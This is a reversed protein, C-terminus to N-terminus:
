KMLVMKRQEVFSGASLRYFYVGSPLNKADFVVSQEGPNLEGEVLTAVERSLVDFVKLSVLSRHPLSFRITTTPNFPNPYNQYLSIATPFSEATTIGGSTVTARKRFYVRLFGNPNNIDGPSIIEYNTFFEGTPLLGGAKFAVTSDYRDTVFERTWNMGRDLSYAAMMDGQEDGTAYNFDREDKWTVWLVNRVPDYRTGEVLESRVTDSIVGGAFGNVAYHWVIPNEFINDTYQYKVRAGQHPNGTPYYHYFLHVRNQSDILVDPDWDADNTSVLEIPQPLWSMGGNSSINAVVDWKKIGGVSDRWAIVLTDGANDFEAHPFASHKGDNASLRQVSSWTLGGDTSRTYFVEAVQATGPNGEHWMVHIRGYRDISFHTAFNGYTQRDAVRITDRIINLHKDLLSIFIASPNVSTWLAYLTDGGNIALKVSGGGQVLNVPTFRRIVPWTSGGDDSYMLYFGYPITVNVPNVEATGIIIRGESTAVNNNYLVGRQKAGPHNGSLPLLVEPGWNPNYGHQAFVWTGSYLVIISLITAKVFVGLAGARLKLKIERFTLM